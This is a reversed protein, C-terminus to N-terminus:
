SVYKKAINSLTYHLALDLLSHPRSIFYNLEEFPYIRLILQLNVNNPNLAVLIRRQEFRLLEFPLKNVNFWAVAAVENSCVPVTEVSVIGEFLYKDFKSDSFTAIKRVIKVDVGIEEKIERIAAQEPFEGHECQGGPIVWLPMDARKTLLVEQYNNRFIVVHSAKRKM